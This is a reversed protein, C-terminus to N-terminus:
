GISKKIKRFYVFYYFIGTLAGGLHAGHGIPLGGGDAQEFLGWLDMGIFALAGWLAPLPLIGFILIKEKPYILSFLLILGSIAGSAGLAPLDPQKLIFASFFSHALSSFISALFYFKLFRGIGITQEVVPGFSNLVFMNLFLHFFMNHSFAATILIWIYGARLSSWSVLFNRVMFPSESDQGGGLSWAMFVLINLFILIRVSSKRNRFFNSRGDYM